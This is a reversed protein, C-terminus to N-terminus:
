GKILKPLLLDRQQKLNQNKAELGTMLQFMPTIKETFEDLLESPIDLVELRMLDKPYVNPQAAGAQMRTIEVQRDKMLLYYNFMPRQKQTSIHATM